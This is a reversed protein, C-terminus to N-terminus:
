QRTGIFTRSLLNNNEIKQTEPVSFPIILSDASLLFGIGRPDLCSAIVGGAQQLSFGNAAVRLPQLKPCGEPFNYMNEILFSSGGNFVTDLKIEVEFIHDPQDENYGKYIGWIPLDQISVVDIAKRLTDAGDDHPFCIQDPTKKVILTIQIEGYPQGFSICVEKGKRITTDSGIKWQYEEIDKQTAVLLLSKGHAIKGTPTKLTDGWETLEFMEFDARTEEQGFCPDYNRCDPDAPDDCRCGSLLLLGLCLMVLLSSAMGPSICFPAQLYAAQRNPNTKKM